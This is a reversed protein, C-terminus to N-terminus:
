DNSSGEAQKRRSEIWAELDVAPKALPKWRLPIMKGCECRDSEDFVHIDGVCQIQRMDTEVKPGWVRAAEERGKEM